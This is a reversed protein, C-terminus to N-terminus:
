DCGKHFLNILIQKTIQTNCNINEIKICKVMNNNYKLGYPEIKFIKISVQGETTHKLSNSILNNLIRKLITPKIFIEKPFNQEIELHFDNGGYNALNVHTNFISKTL